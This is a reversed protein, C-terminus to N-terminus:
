NEEHLVFDPWKRGTPRPREPSAGQEYPHTTFMANGRDYSTYM